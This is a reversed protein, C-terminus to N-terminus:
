YGWLRQPKPSIRRVKLKPTDVSTVNGSTLDVEVRSIRVEALVMEIPMERLQKRDGSSHAVRTQRGLPIRRIAAVPPYSIIRNLIM